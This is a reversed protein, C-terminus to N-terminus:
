DAGKVANHARSGAINSKMNNFYPIMYRIMRIEERNLSKLTYNAVGYTIAGTLVTIILNTNVWWLIIGMILTSLLPKTINKFVMAGEFSSIYIMYLYATSIFGSILLAVAAGKAGWIPILWLNLTIHIIISFINAYTVHNIRDAATLVYAIMSAIFLVSISAGLIQLIIEAAFFAKGYILSIVHPAVFYIGASMPLGIMTIYKISLNGSAVLSKSSEHYQRAFVPFLVAAILSPVLYLVAILENAASFLGVEDNKVFKSLMIIDVRGQIIAVASVLFFPTSKQFTRVLSNQTTKWILKFFKKHIIIIGMVALIIYTVTGILALWLVDAKLKVVILAGFLALVSRSIALLANYEM